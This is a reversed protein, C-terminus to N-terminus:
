NDLKLKAIEEMIDDAIKQYKDRGSPLDKWKESKIIKGVYNKIKVPRPFKAHRPFANYTDSYVPLVDAGIKDIFLGIGALGKQLRGDKSRTGEPFILVSKGEDCLEKVKRITKMDLRERSIPVVNVNSMWWALFKNNFLTTRALFCIHQPFSSGVAIPDLFSAHNSAVIMGKGEPPINERGFIKRRHYIKLYLRILFTSFSYIFSKMTIQLNLM